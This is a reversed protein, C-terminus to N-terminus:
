QINDVTCIRSYIEDKRVYEMKKRVNEKVYEYKSGNKDIYKLSM